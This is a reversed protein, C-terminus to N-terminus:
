IQPTCFQKVAPPTLRAGRAAYNYAHQEVISALIERIAHSLKPAVRQECECSDQREGDSDARVGCNESCGIRQQEPIGDTHRM